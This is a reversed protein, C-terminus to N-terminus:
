GETLGYEAARMRIRALAARGRPSRLPLGIFPLDLAMARAEYAIDGLNLRTPIKLGPQRAASRARHAISLLEVTVEPVSEAADSLLQLAYETEAHDAVGPRGTIRVAVTNAARIRVAIARVRDATMIQHHVRTSLHTAAYALRYLRRVDRDIESQRRQVTLRHVNTGSM